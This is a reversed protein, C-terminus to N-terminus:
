LSIGTARELHWPRLDLRGVQPQTGMEPDLLGLSHFGMAEFAGVVWWQPPLRPAWLNPCVRWLPACCKGVKSQCEGPETRPEKGAGQM